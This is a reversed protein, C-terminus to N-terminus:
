KFFAMGCYIGTGFGYFLFVVVFSVTILSFGNLSIALVIKAASFLKENGALFSPHSEIYMQFKHNLKPVLKPVVKFGPVHRLVGFM